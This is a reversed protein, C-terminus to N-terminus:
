RRQWGSSRSRQMLELCRAEAKNQVLERDKSWNIERNWWDYLEWQSSLESIERILEDVQSGYTEIRHLVIDTLPHDGPKSNAM